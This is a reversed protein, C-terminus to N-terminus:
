VCCISNNIIILNLYWKQQLANSPLSRLQFWLILAQFWKVSKNCKSASLVLPLLLQSPNLLWWDHDLRHCCLSPVCCNGGLIFGSEIVPCANWAQIVDLSRREMWQHISHSATSLAPFFFCRGSRQTSIIDCMRCPINNLKLQQSLQPNKPLQYNDSFSMQDDATVM